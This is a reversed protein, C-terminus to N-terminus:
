GVIWIPLSPVGFRFRDLCNGICCDTKPINARQVSLDMQNLLVDERDIGAAYPMLTGLGLTPNSTIGNLLLKYWDIANSWVEIDGTMERYVSKNKALDAIIAYLAYISAQRVSGGSMDLFYQVEEDSFTFPESTDAIFLRVAQIPSLAM